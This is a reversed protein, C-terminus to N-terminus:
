LAAQMEGIMSNVPIGDIQYGADETLIDYSLAVGQFPHIAVVRKGDIVDGVQIHHAKVGCIRHCGSTSVASGDACVIRIYQANQPNELYSHKQLIRVPKGGYGLVVDGVQLAQLAVPGSPTDLYTGEPLCGFAFKVMAVRAGLNLLSCGSFASMLAIGCVTLLIKSLVNNFM